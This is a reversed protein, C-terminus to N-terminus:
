SLRQPSGLLLRIKSEHLGFAVAAAAPAISKSMCGFRNESADLGIRLVYLKNKKTKPDVKSLQRTLCEEYTWM